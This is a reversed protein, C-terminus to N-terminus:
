LKRTYMMEKVGHSQSLKGSFVFGHKEYFKRARTNKEFVWLIIEEYGTQRIENLIYNMMMSGYGQHWRECLSHICILEAVNSELGNRNKSWGAICHPRGEVMEIVLRIHPDQLVKKYMLENRNIDTCRELEEPDLIGIFATKWSESQITALIKEDGVEAIRFQVESM